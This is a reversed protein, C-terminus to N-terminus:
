NQRFYWQWDNRVAVEQITLWQADPHLHSHAAHIFKVEGNVLAAKIIGERMAEALTQEMEEESEFKPSDDNM